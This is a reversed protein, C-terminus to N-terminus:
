APAQLLSFMAGQPDACIAIQGFPTPFPGVFLKGGGDKVIAVAAAIDATQFYIMWHPPVGAHGDSMLSVGGVADAGHHLTYYAGSPTPMVEARLGTLAAYFDRAAEADRTNVEAWAIAGPEGWRGAGHHEGAQWVGFAAGTPDVGIFMRGQPGVQMPPMVVTGGLEATRAATADADDSAFYLVWASPMSSGPPQGGIGAVMQGGVTALGYGGYEEDSMVAIEWGLLRGYFARAAAPDTSMLDAWSPTGAPHSPTLPM